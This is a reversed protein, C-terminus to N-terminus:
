SRPCSLSSVEVQGNEEHRVDLLLSDDAGLRFTSSAKMDKSNNEVRNVLTNNGCFSNITYEGGQRDVGDAIMVGQRVGEGWDISFSYTTVGDTEEQSFTLKMEGQQGDQEYTCLYNGTLDPCSAWVSSTLGLLIGMAIAKFM